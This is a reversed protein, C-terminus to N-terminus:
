KFARWPPIPEEAELTELHHDFPGIVERGWTAGAPAPGKHHDGESISSERTDVAKVLADDGSVSRPGLRELLISPNHLDCLRYTTPKVVHARLEAPYLPLRRLQLDSTRIKEPAGDERKFM